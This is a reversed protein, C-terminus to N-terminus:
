ELVPAIAQTLGVGRAACTKTEPALAEMLDGVGWCDGSGRRGRGEWLSADRGGATSFSGDEVPPHQLSLFLGQTPRAGVDRARKEGAAGLCPKSAAHEPGARAMSFRCANGRPKACQVGGGRGTDARACFRFPPLPALPRALSTRIPGEWRGRARVRPRGKLALGKIESPASPSPISHVIKQWGWGM